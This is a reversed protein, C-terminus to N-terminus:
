VRRGSVAQTRIQTVCFSRTNLNAPIMKQLTRSNKAPQLVTGLSLVSATGRSHTAVLAMGAGPATLIDRGAFGGPLDTTGGATRVLKGGGFIEQGAGMKAHVESLRQAASFLIVAGRL